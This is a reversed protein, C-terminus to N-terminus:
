SVKGLGSITLLRYATCFRDVRDQEGSNMGLELMALRNAVGTELQFVAHAVIMVLALMVVPSTPCYPFGIDDNLLKVQPM